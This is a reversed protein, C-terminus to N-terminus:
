IQFVGEKLIESVTPHPFVLQGIEEPKMEMEIMLAAGFIIESAYNSIMHVGLLKDTGKETIFKCIGDGGENEALYRGSYRLSIKTEKVEYGKKQASEKTDGVGAVEPNTYVVYPVANYRMVDNIGYMNNIAVQAERYATHALMSKGNVDGAAYIGPLNTRMYEDTKVAGSVVDLGLRDGKLKEAYPRRGISMLVKSAKVSEKGKETEYIVEDETVEVVRSKLNFRIGKKEYSKLLLASIETDNNGAIHDLMEIITVNSGASNYYSAMELGIIGGGVVVLSEPIEKLDLIEKNTLVHGKELGEKVGKIPPLLPSSGAAILVKEGTYDEEGATIVYGESTKEKFVAEASIVTVNGAKMKAKVGAVLTKVVKNKRAIVKDHHFETEKSVVGYKESLRANDYLKASYLLTKSPICGENLCVGGLNEKEILLVNKKMEGALEAAMYGAPGGGIVILDYIM